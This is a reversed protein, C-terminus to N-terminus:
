NYRKPRPRYTGRNANEALRKSSLDQDRKVLEANDFELAKVRANSEDLKARYFDRERILEEQTM